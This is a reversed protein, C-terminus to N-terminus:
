LYFKGKQVKGVVVDEMPAALAIRGIEAHPEVDGLMVKVKKMKAMKDDGSMFSSHKTDECRNDLMGLALSGLVEPVLIRFRVVIAAMAVAFLVVSSALLLVLWPTSYQVLEVRTYTEMEVVNVSLNSPNEATFSGTVDEVRIGLLLQSNIMQTLGTEFRERPIAAPQTTNEVSLANLLELLYTVIPVQGGSNNSGPFMSAFIATFAESQVTSSEMDFLTWNGHRVPNPSRRVSAPSCLTGQCQMKIDVYTTYLHCEAYSHGEEGFTRSEWIFVRAPRDKGERYRKVVDEQSRQCPQSLRVRLTQEAQRMTWQCNSGDSSNFDPVTTPFEYEPLVKITPCEVNVYSASITFTHNGNSPLSAVPIGVLSSYIVEQAGSLDIWDTDPARNPLREILPVRINGWIDQNRDQLLRASLMSAIFSPVLRTRVFGGSSGGAFYRFPAFSEMVTLNDTENRFVHDASIARLAAQSGLPSLCWLLVIRVALLNFAKLRAQTFLAGTVTHSGVLQEIVGVQTGNQVHWTAFTKLAGGVIAAFLVPFVTPGYKAIDLLVKGTSGPASTSGDSMYILGGFLVFLLAGAALTLDLLSTLLRKTTWPGELQRPQVAERGDGHM